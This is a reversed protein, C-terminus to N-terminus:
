PAHSSAGGRSRDHLPPRCLLGDGFNSGMRPRGHKMSGLSWVSPNPSYGGADDSGPSLLPEAPTGNAIGAPQGLAPSEGDAATAATGGRQAALLGLLVSGSSAGLLACGRSWVASVKETSYDCLVESALGAALGGLLAAGAAQRCAHWVTSESRLGVAALLFSLVIGM